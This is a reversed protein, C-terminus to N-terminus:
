PDGRMAREALEAAAMHVEIRKRSDAPWPRCGTMWWAYPPGTWVLEAKYRQGTVLEVLVTV